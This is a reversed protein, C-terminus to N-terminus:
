YDGRPYFKAGRESAKVRAPNSEWTFSLQFPCNHLLDMRAVTFTRGMCLLRQKNKRTLLCTDKFSTSNHSFPPFLDWKQPFYAGSFFHVGLLPALIPAMVPIRKFLMRVNPHKSSERLALVLQAPTHQTTFYKGLITEVLCILLEVNVWGRQQM